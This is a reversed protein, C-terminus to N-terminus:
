RWSSFVARTSLDTAMRDHCFLYPLSCLPEAIGILREFYEWVKQAVGGPAARALLFRARRLYYLGSQRRFIAKSPPANAGSALPPDIDPFM